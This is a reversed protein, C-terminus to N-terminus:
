GRRERRIVARKAESRYRAQAKRWAEDLRSLRLDGGGDDTAAAYLADQNPELMVDVLLDRIGAWTADPPSASLTDAVVQRKADPSTAKRSRRLQVSLYVDYDWPGSMPREGLILRNRVDHLYHRAALVVAYRDAARGSGEDTPPQWCLLTVVQRWRPDAKDLRRLREEAGAEEFTTRAFEADMGADARLITRILDDFSMEEHSLYALHLWPSWVFGVGLIAAVAARAPFAVDHPVGLTAVAIATCAIVLVLFRITRVVPMAAVVIWALAVLVPVSSQSMGNPMGTLPPGHQM